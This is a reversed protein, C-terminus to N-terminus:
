VVIMLGSLDLITRELIIIFHDTAIRNAGNLLAFQSAVSLWQLLIRRCICNSFLFYQSHGVQFTSDGATSTEKSKQPSAVPLPQVVMKEQFKLPSAFIKTPSKEKAPTKEKIPTKEKVPTKDKTPTKDKNPTKDAGTPSSGKWRKNSKSNVQLLPSVNSYRIRMVFINLFTCNFSCAPTPSGVKPSSKTASLKKTVERM